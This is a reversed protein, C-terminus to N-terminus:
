SSRSARRWFSSARLAALFARRRAWFSSSSRWFASVMARPEGRRDGPEGSEVESRVM